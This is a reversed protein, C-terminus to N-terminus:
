FYCFLDMRISSLPSLARLVLRTPILLGFEYVSSRTGM